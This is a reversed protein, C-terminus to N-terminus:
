QENKKNDDNKDDNNKNDDNLIKKEGKNKNPSFKTKGECCKKKMKQNDNIKNNEIVITNNNSNNNINIQNNNNNNNNNNKLEEILFKNYYEQVVNQFLVEVSNYNLASTESFIANISIAFEKGDNINVKENEYLDSKNAAIGFIMNEKKNISIVENYWKLLNDFSNKNTIDYVLICINTKKIFIKNVTSYQEQGATDWINLSLENSDINMKKISRDQGVSMIYESNFTKNIFQNILSTKGTHADGVLIIKLTLKDKDSQSM